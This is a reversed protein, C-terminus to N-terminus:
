RPWWGSAAAVNQRRVQHQRHGLRVQLLRLGMRGMAARRQARLLAPRVALRGEGQEEAEALSRAPDDSSGGIFGAYSTTWPTSYTGAKLGLGHIYDCLGRMDSFKENPQIANYKGGRQGQWGDDINIYQWGHNILGSDVMAKAAARLNEDKVKAGLRGLHQM